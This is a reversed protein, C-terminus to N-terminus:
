QVNLVCTEKDKIGEHGLLTKTDWFFISKILTLLSRILTLLPRILTLLSRILTEFHIREGLGEGHTKCVSVYVCVCVCTHMYICVYMRKYMCVYTYMRIYTYVYVHTHCVYMCVSVLM